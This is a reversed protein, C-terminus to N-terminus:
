GEADALYARLADGWPRLRLGTAAAFKGCDLVSNAPRPAPRGLEATTLPLVSVDTRGQFELIRGAFEHWTCTGQNTVHYIGALGGEAAAKLALALDRTYTPSGRQDDVVKLVRTKQAQALIAKVFNKGAHGFLWATRVVCVGPLVARAREEGELKSRGYVGLPHTPDDERYPTPKSGDYVYDTSLHVLRSGHQRCAMALNEVGEGNIRYCAEPHTESGDVDTYAAANIVVEPRLAGVQRLVSGRETLDMEEVDVGIAEHNDALVRLLDTGLMGKSGAVLIKM